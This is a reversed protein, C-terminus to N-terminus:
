PLQHVLLESLHHVSALLPAYFAASVVITACAAFWPLRTAPRPPPADDSVLHRVRSAVEPGSVLGSAAWLPRRPPTVRAIKLLASALALARVRSGDSAASDAAHEVASCWEREIARARATWGWLDPACRISLRKLNDRARLHGVEHAASAALEEASLTDVFGRTVLLRPRAIGALLMAPRMSPVIYTPVGVGDLHLPRASEQLANATLAARRWAAMGRIAGAILLCAGAAALVVLGGEFEEVSGRPELSWYSPAFVAGVFLVSACAPFLRATLLLRARARADRAAAARSIVPAALAAGLSLVANVILFWAFALTIGHALYTM